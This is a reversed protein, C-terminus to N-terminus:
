VCIVSHRSSSPLLTSFRVSVYLFTSFRVSVYQFTCFRVSVYMFTSFRVSVYQFTSFRVSVYQFTSFRVSVYYFTSQLTSFPVLVTLCNVVHYFVPCSKFHVQCSKFISKALSSKSPFSSFVSFIVRCSKKLLVSIGTSIICQAM